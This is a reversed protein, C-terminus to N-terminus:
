IDTTHENQYEKLKKRVERVAKEYLKRINRGSVGKVAAIDEASYGHVARYFLVEKRKGNLDRLAESLTEDEVLEHLDDPSRSFIYDPWGDSHNLIKFRLPISIEEESDEDLLHPDFEHRRNKRFHKRDNLADAKDFEKVLNEFWEYRETEDDIRSLEEQM